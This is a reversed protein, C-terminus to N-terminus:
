RFSKTRRLQLYTVLLFAIAIITLALENSWLDIAHEYAVDQDRLFENGSCNYKPHSFATANATDCIYLDKLENIQFGHMTYRFISVWQIWRLWAPITDVLVLVGSYVMMCTWVLATLVTGISHQRTTVSFLLAVSVGALSTLSINLLYFLFHSVSMQFGILFYSIIAFLVIPFFRQPIIDCFLKAFFYASVRYYGSITEHIFIAREKMFVDVAAMNGFVYNMTIFFFAGV